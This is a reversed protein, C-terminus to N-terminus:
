KEPGVMKAPDIWQDFQEGTVYGLEVATARLTKKQRWATLAIEAAKDYGIHKNLATVLMLSNELYGAIKETDATIGCACKADFSGCADALLRISELLSFGLLPKYANLEFSGAAAAMAIACDNGYVRCVVMSVMECQTPNVKGPMISSGPENAPLVLEGLGCRPGTALHRIDNVIKLMAGALTRLSGSTNAIADHAAILAFKNAAPRFPKGTLKAIEETMASDFGCKTNLGTGVATGGICLEYLNECASVILGGAQTLQAAYGSFEQGLTIPTADQLHTRGVKIIQEFEAAKGELTETLKRLNPLLASEIAAVAAIHMSTGVTDNTSQAMNVHDNPHVPGDKTTRKGVLLENARTAIVENVNMNFQTGSGSQWVSLPFQEALSGAIVEDAAQGIAESLREDLSGLKCNVTAAVKKVLAHAAIWEAPFLESGVRFNERARQTQGGFYAAQPVEVTGLSDKEIRM